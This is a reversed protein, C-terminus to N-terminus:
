QVARDLSPSYLRREGSESETMLRLVSGNTLHIVGPSVELAAPLYGLPLEQSAGHADAVVYEFAFEKALEPHKHLYKLKGLALLGDQNTLIIQRAPNGNISLWSIDDNNAVVEWKVASEEFPEEKVDLAEHFLLSTGALSNDERGKAYLDVTVGEDNRTVSVSINDVGIWVSRENPKLEYENSSVPALAPADAFRIDSELAHWDTYGHIRAILELAQSHNINVNQTALYAKAIKAAHGTQPIRINM